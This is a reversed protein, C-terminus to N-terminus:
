SFIIFIICKNLYRNKWHLLTSTNTPRGLPLSKGGQGPTLAGTSVTSCVPADDETCSHLPLILGYASIDRYSSYVRGLPAIGVIGSKSPTGDYASVLIRTSHSGLHGQALLTPSPTHNYASILYLHVKHDRRSRASCTLISTSVQARQMFSVMLPLNSKLPLKWLVRSASQNHHRTAMATVTSLLTVM